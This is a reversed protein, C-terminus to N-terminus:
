TDLMNYQKWFLSKTNQAVVAAFDLLHVLPELHRVGQQHVYILIIGNCTDRSLFHM